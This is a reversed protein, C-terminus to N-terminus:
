GVKGLNAEASGLMVAAPHAQEGSMLLEMDRQIRKPLNSLQSTQPDVAVMRQTAQAYVKNVDNANAFLFTMNVFRGCETEARSLVAIPTGYKIPRKFDINFNSVVGTIQTLDMGLVEQFFHVRALEIYTSYTANNLHGLVDFDNFRVQIDTKVFYQSM